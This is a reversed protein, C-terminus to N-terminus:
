EGSNKESILFALFSVGRLTEVLDTLWHDLSKTSSLRVINVRASWVMSNMGQLASSALGEVSQCNVQYRALSFPSPGSWIEKMQFSRWRSNGTLSLSCLSDGLVGGWQENQLWSINISSMGCAKKLQVFLMPAPWLKTTTSLSMMGSMVMSFIMLSSNLSKSSSISYGATQNVAAKKNAM